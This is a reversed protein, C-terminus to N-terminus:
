GMYPPHNKRHSHLCPFSLSLPSRFMPQLAQVFFSSSSSSSSSSSTALKATTTVRHHFCLITRTAVISALFRSHFLRHLESLSASYHSHNARHNKYCLCPIASPALARHNPAVSAPQPQHHHRHLLSLRDNIEKQPTRGCTSVMRGYHPGTAWLSHANKVCERM